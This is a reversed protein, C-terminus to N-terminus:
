RAAVCGTGAGPAGHLAVELAKLPATGAKRLGQYQDVCAQPCCALSGGDAWPKASACRPALPFCTDITKDPPQVCQVVLVSCAVTILSPGAKSLDPANPDGAMNAPAAKPPTKAAVALAAAEANTPVRTGSSDVKGAAQQGTECPRDAYTMKGDPGICRFMGASAASAALLGAVLVLAFRNMRPAM